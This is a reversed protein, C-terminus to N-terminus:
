DHIFQGKILKEYEFTYTGLRSLGSINNKSLDSYVILKEIFEDNDPIYFISNETDHTAIIQQNSCLLLYDTIYYNLIQSDEDRDVYAYKYKFNRVVNDVTTTENTRYNIVSLVNNFVRLVNSSYDFFSEYEFGTYLFDQFLHIIETKTKSGECLFIVSCDEEFFMKYCFFRIMETTLGVGKPQGIILMKKNFVNLEDQLKSIDIRKM